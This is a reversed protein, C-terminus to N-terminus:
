RVVVMRQVLRVDEAELVYFYVGSAFANGDLRLTHTGAEVDGDALTAIADVATGVDHFLFATLKGM